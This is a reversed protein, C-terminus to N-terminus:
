NIIFKIVSYIGIKISDKNRQDFKINRLFQYAHNFYNENMSNTCNFKYVIKIKNTKFLKQQRQFKFM